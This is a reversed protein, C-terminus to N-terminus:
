FRYSRKQIAISVNENIINFIAKVGEYYCKMGTKNKAISWLLALLIHFSYIDYDPLKIMKHIASDNADILHNITTSINYITSIKIYENLRTLYKTRGLETQEGTHPHTFIDAETFKTSNAIKNTILDINQQYLPTDRINVFLPM